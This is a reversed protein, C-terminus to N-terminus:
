ATLLLMGVSPGGVKSGGGGGGGSTGMEAEYVPENKGVIVFLAAM